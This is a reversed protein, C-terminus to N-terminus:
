RQDREQWNLIPERVSQEFHYWKSGSRHRIMNKDTGTSMARGDLRWGQHDEDEIAAAAGVLGLSM